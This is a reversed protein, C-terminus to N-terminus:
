RGGRGGCEVPERCRTGRRGKTSHFLRMAKLPNETVGEWFERLKQVRHEPANGAIIASNIAGISIGAIWDPHLGAESLAEYVGGQYAGLSGGGQLVLAICEFPPRTRARHTKSKPQKASVTAQSDLEHSKRNV